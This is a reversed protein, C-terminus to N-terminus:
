KEKFFSIDLGRRDDNLLSCTFSFYYKKGGHEFIQVPEDFLGELMPAYVKFNYCTVTMGKGDDDVNNSISRQGGAVNKDMKFKLTIKSGEDFNFIAVGESKLSFSASNILEKGDVNIKM